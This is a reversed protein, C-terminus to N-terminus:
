DDLPEGTSMYDEWDSADWDDNLPGNEWENENEKYEEHYDM